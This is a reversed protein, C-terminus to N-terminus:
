GIRDIILGYDNLMPINFLRYLRLPWKLRVSIEHVDCTNRIARCIRDLSADSEATFQIRRLQEDFAGGQEEIITKSAKFRHAPHHRRHHDLCMWVVPGSGLIRRYLDGPASEEDQNILFTTLQRLNLTECYNDDGEDELAAPRKFRFEKLRCQLFDITEDVAASLDQQNRLGSISHTRMWDFLNMPPINVQPDHYGYKVYEMMTLAYAAYKDFFTDADRIRYGKDSSLHIKHSPQTKGKSLLGKEANTAGCLFFMRFQRLEGQM